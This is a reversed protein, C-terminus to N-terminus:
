AAGTQKTSSEELVEFEADEVQQVGRRLVEGLLL